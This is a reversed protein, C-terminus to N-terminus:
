RRRRRSKPEASRRRSPQRAPALGGVYDRAAGDTPPCGLRAGTFSPPDSAPFSDAAMGDVERDPSTRGDEDCYESLWEIPEGDQRQRPKARGSPM